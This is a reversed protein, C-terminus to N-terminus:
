QLEGLLDRLREPINRRPNQALDAALGMHEPHFLRDEMEKFDSAIQPRFDMNAFIDEELDVGPAAELLELGGSGRRFVARETIFM